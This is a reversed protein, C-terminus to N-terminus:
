MAKGQGGSGGGGGAREEKDMQQKRWALWQMLTSLADDKGPELDPVPAPLSLPHAGGGSGGSSSGNTGGGQQQGAAGAAGQNAAQIERIRKHYARYGSWAFRHWVRALAAQLM